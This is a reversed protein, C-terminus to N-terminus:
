NLVTVTINTTTISNDADAAGHTATLDIANSVTTDIANTASRRMWHKVSTTFASMFDVEGQSYITGSVGTSRCTFIVEMHWEGGESTVMTQAGTTCLLTGGLEARLELTSPVADETWIGWADIKITKGAVLFNAPLTMTGEGTPVITTETNSNSVTVDATGTFITGTLSQTIGAQNSVLAKQTSSTWTEGDEVSAPTTTSQFRGSGVVHLEATPTETGIGVLGSNFTAAYHIGTTTARYRIGHKNVNTLGNNSFTPEIAMALLTPTVTSTDATITQRFLAGIITGNQNGLIVRFNRAPLGVYFPTLNGNDNALLSEAFNWQFIRTASTNIESVIAGVRSNSSQMQASTGFKLIRGTGFLNFTANQRYESGTYAVVGGGVTWRASGNTINGFSNSLSGGGGIQLYNNESAGFISNGAVGFTENPVTTNNIWVKSGDFWFKNNGALTNTGSWYTVQNATGSGGNVTFALDATTITGDLIESSTVAGTDIHSAQISESRIEATIDQGTLTLDITTGDTVTVADHTVLTTDTAYTIRGDADVTFSPIKTSTGYTGPTVATSAIENSGVVGTGLQLNDYTGSVDGDFLTTDRLYGVTDPTGAYIPRTYVLMLTNADMVDCMYDNHTGGTTSVGGADTLFYSSGVTLGHGTVDLRGLVQLVVTDTHLIEVIYNTHLSLTDDAQALTWTGANNYVPIFGHTPLVFGHAAQYVTDKLLADGTGLSAVANDVYEKDTLSRPNTVYGGLNYEIGQKQVRYDTFVAGDQGLQLMTSDARIYIEKDAPKFIFFQSSTPSQIVFDDAYAIRGEPITDNRGYIGDGDAGGVAIAEDVLHAFYTQICSLLDNSIGDVFTPFSSNPTVELIAANALPQNVLVTDVDRVNARIIGGTSSIISIVELEICNDAELLFIKDGVDVSDSTYKGGTDNFIGRIEYNPATGSSQYINLTGRFSTTVQSNVTFLLTFLFLFTILIRM